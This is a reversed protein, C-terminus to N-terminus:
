RYNNPQCYEKEDIPVPNHVKLLHGSFDNLCDTQELIYEIVWLIANDDDRITFSFVYVIFEQDFEDSKKSTVLWLDEGFLFWFAWIFVEAGLQDDWDSADKLFFGILELIVLFYFLCELKDGVM